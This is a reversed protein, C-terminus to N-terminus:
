RHWPTLCRSRAHLVASTLLVDINDLVPGLAEFSMTEFDTFGLAQLIEPDSETGMRLYEIGHDTTLFPETSMATPSSSLRSRSPAFDTLDLIM